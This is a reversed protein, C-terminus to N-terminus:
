GCKVRAFLEKYNLRNVVTSLASAKSMKRDRLLDANGNRFIYPTQRENANLSFLQQSMKKSRLFQMRRRQSAVM